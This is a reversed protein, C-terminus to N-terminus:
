STLLTTTASIKECGDIIDFSANDTALHPTKWSGSMLNSRQKITGLM